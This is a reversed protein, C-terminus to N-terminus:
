AARRRKRAARLIERASIHGSTLEEIDLARDTPIGKDIWQRVAERTIDFRRAVEACSGVREVLKEALNMAGM